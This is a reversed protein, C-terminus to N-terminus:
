FEIFEQEDVPDFDKDHVIGVINGKFYFDAQEGTERDTERFLFDCRGRLTDGVAYGNKQLILRQQLTEFSVVGYFPVGEFRADFRGGHVRVTLGGWYAPLEAAFRIYLTDGNIHIDCERLTHEGQHDTVCETAFDEGQLEKDYEVEQGGTQGGCSTLLILFFSLIYSNIPM